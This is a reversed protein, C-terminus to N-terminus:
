QKSYLWMCTGNPILIDLSFIRYALHEIAGFNFFYLSFAVILPNLSLEEPDAAVM